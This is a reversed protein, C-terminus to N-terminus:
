EPKYNSLKLVIKSADVWLRVSLNTKYSETNDYKNVVVAACEPNFGHHTLFLHYNDETAQFM